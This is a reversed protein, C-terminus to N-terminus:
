MGDRELVKAYEEYLICFSTGIGNEVLFALVTASDEVLNAYMIWLNLYMKNGKYADDDKFQMTTEELLDLLGSDPDDLEYNDIIWKVFREYPALPDEEEDFASEIAARHNQRERELEDASRRVM